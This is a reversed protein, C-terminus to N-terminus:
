SQKKKDLIDDIPLDDEEDRRPEDREATGRSYGATAGRYRDYEEIDARKEQLRTREAEQRAGEAQRANLVREITPELAQKESEMRSLINNFRTENMDSMSAFNHIPPPQLIPPMMAPYGTFQNSAKKAPAKRKRGKGSNVNVVVRQTVKQKVNGIKVKRKVKRPKKVPKKKRKAQESM